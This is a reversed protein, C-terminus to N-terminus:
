AITRANRKYAAAIKLNDRWRQQPSYGLEQYALVLAGAAANAIDDHGGRPHDVKDRGGRVATRELSVLQLMMREHDLLDVARSNILPLVDLYLESKSKEAPELHV